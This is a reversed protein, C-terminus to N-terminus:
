DIGSRDRGTEDEDSDDVYPSHVYVHILMFKNSSYEAFMHLMDDHCTLQVLGTNMDCMPRTYFLSLNHKHEYYGTQDIM